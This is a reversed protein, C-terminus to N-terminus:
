EGHSGGHAGALGARPDWDADVQGLLNLHQVGEAALIEDLAVLKYSAEESAGGGPLENSDDHVVLLGRPFEPGLNAGVAALGDTNTVHDIQGDATDTVTFTLVYEHPHARRYVNYASVGQCSVLIYGDDKTAGQVLTVGEVDGWLRGDGVYAVRYGDSSGDPEADYRWLASPEEGLILWGNDEDTVCGEVQGGSGGVFERVLTTQLTGNSSATLEYQMYRASKENVFLYQKGTKKSRYVCSGYLEDEVDSPQIGGPIDQLVGDPTMEFMSCDTLFWLDFPVRRGGYWLTNDARCAAYALDVTRNGAQFSYIMDVNNPQAAPHVQLLQGTLDFVGLGAGSQSKTTTVIRSADRAIPSIWIAPDDGDVGNAETEYKPEVLLFACHLGGWGAECRCLNPGVCTGHGSCDDECTIEECREGASGAFCDCTSTESSYFGHHSCQESIPSPKRCSTLERPDYEANTELDLEQLVGELSSFGFGEFDDAEAAYALIGSPYLSTAAQYMSLAEVEIDELGALELTGVLNWPYEYVSVVNELAVFLYDNASGKSHYVAVGTLTDDAKGVVALEPAQTSETVDFSYLDEGEDPTLFLKAHTQSVACGAFEM